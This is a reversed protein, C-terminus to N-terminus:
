EFAPPDELPPDPPAVLDASGRTLLDVFGPSWERPVTERVVLESIFASLSKKRRRAEARAKQAVDKPLYLTVQAM